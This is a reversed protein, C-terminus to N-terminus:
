IGIKVVETEIDGRERLTKVVAAAKAKAHFCIHLEDEFRFTFDDPSVLWLTLWYGPKIDSSPDMGSLYRIAWGSLPPTGKLGGRFSPRTSNLEQVSKMM